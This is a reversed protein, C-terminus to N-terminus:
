DLRGAHATVRLGLPGTDVSGDIDVTFRVGFDAADGLVLLADSPYLSRVGAQEDLYQAVDMVFLRPARGQVGVPRDGEILRFVQTVQPDDDATVVPHVSTYEADGLAEELTAATRLRASQLGLGATMGATAVSGVLTVNAHRGVPGTILESLMARVLERVGGPDGTVAVATGARSLDVLIREGDHLGLTVALAYPQSPAPPEHPPYTTIVDSSLHWEGGDEDATWGGPAARDAGALRLALRDGSYALAYVDPMPRAVRECDAALRRLGLDITDLAERGTVDASPARRPAPRPRIETVVLVAIAGVLAVGIVVALVATLSM